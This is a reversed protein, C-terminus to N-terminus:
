RPAPAKISIQQGIIVRALTSFGPAESRDRPPGFANLANAIDHDIAALRALAGDEHNLAHHMKNPM